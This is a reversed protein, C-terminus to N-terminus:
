LWLGEALLDLVSCLYSAVRALVPRKPYDLGLAQMPMRDFQLVILEIPKM